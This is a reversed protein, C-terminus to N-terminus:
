PPARALPREPPVCALPAPVILICSRGAILAGATTSLCTLASGCTCISGHDGPCSPSSASAVAPSHQAPASSEHVARHQGGGHASAPRPGALVCVLLLGAACAALRRMPPMRLPCRLFLRGAPRRKM